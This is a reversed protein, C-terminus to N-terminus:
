RSHTSTRNHLNPSWRGRERPRHLASAGWGAHLDSPWGRLGGNPQHRPRPRTTKPDGFDSEIIVGAQRPGLNWAPRNKAGLLDRRGSPVQGWFHSMRFVHWQKVSM